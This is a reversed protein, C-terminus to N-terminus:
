AGVGTKHKIGGRSGRGAQRGAAAVFCGDSSGPGQRSPCGGWGLGDLAM